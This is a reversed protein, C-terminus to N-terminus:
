TDFVVLGVLSVAASAVLAGKGDVQVTYCTNGCFADRGIHGFTSESITNSIVPGSPKYSPEFDGMNDEERIDGDEAPSEPQCSTRVELAALVKGSDEHLAAMKENLSAMRMIKSRRVTDRLTQRRKPVWGEPLREHAIWPLVVSLPAGSKASGDTTVVNEGFIGLVLAMEGRAFEAHLGNLPTSLKERRVRARAVDKEDLVITSPITALDEPIKAVEPQIDGLLEKVWPEVIDRPAYEEGEPTDRHVLSADHEIAQHRDFFTLDVSGFPWCTLLLFGGWSLFTALPISLNYCERLGQFLGFVTIGKGDRPRVIAEQKLDRVSIMLLLLSQADLAAM